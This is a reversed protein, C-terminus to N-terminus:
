RATTPGSTLNKTKIASSLRDASREGQHYAFIRVVNTEESVGHASQGAGTRYCDAWLVPSALRGMPYAVFTRISSAM